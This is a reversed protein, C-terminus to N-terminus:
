AKRLPKLGVAKIMVRDLLRDPLFNRLYWLGLLPYRSKPQPATLAHCIADTVVKIPKATELEKALFAPLDAMAQAYDTNAYPNNTQSQPSKDWIPTKIAGPEIASVSIGYISLERRLGDSLAEVAHKTMAYLTVLPFTVGGSISSLNVIRGPPHPADARGGLLPLFAQTVALLGFVNIEFAQRVEKLSSHMLPGSPAVGANNVLGALGADGVAAQVLAVAAPLAENDTVDFLLPTFDPGLEAQVRVGDAEKRVSGFVQYGHAILAQATAFGIGTSVGTIVVAKKM